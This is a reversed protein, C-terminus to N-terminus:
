REKHLISAIDVMKMLLLIQMKRKFKRFGQLVDRIDARTRGSTILDQRLDNESINEFPKDFRESLIEKFQVKGRAYKPM